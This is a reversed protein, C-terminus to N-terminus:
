VFEVHFINQAGTNQNTIHDGSKTEGATLPTAMSQFEIYVFSYIRDLVILCYSKFTIIGSLLLHSLEPDYNYLKSTTPM